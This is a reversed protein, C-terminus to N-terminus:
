SARIETGACGLVAEAIGDPSTIVARGATAEVFAIAAEIKPKMSGSKFHGEALYQRAEELTIKSLDQQEPTGFNLSVQRVGTSILFLDAKMQSALL